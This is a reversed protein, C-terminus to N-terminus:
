FESNSNSYLNRLEYIRLENLMGVCLANFLECLCSNTSRVSWYHLICVCVGVCARVCTLPRKELVVQIHQYWFPLVLKSKFSAHSSLAKKHLLMLQVMHLCDTGRELCIVVGFCCWKIKVPWISKRVSLWCHWLVSPLICHLIYSCLIRHLWEGLSWVKLLSKLEISLQWVTRLALWITLTVRHSVCCMCVDLCNVSMKTTALVSAFNLKIWNISCFSHLYM